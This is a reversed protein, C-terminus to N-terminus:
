IKADIGINSIKTLNDLKSIKYLEVDNNLTFIDIEIKKSIVKKLNLELNKKNENFLKMYEENKCIIDIKLSNQMSHIKAKVNDLNNTNLSIYLIFDNLDINKKDNKKIFFEAGKNELIPMMFYFYNENLNINQSNKILNININENKDNIENFSKHLESFLKMNEKINENKNVDDANKINDFIKLIIKVIKKNLDVNLDKSNQVDFDDNKNDFLDNIKFLLDKKELNEDFFKSILNDLMFNIDIKNSFMMNLSILNKANIEINNSKLFCISDILKSQNKVLNKFIEIDDVKINKFNEILDNFDNIEFNEIIDDIKEFNKLDNNQLFEELKMGLKNIDFFSNLVENFNGKSIPIKFGHMALLIDINRETKSLKFSDLESFILNKLKTEINELSDILSIDEPLNILKLVIKDNTNELVEFNTVSGVFLNSNSEQRAHIIKNDIELLVGDSTKEIVKAQIVDGKQVSSKTNEINNYENKIKNIDIRM